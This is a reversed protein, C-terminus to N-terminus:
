DFKKVRKPNVQGGAHSFQYQSAALHRAQVPSKMTIEIVEGPMFPKRYAETDGTVVVPPTAKNYWYEDM